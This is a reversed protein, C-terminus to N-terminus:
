NKIIWNEIENIQKKIHKDDKIDNYNEFIIDGLLRGATENKFWLSKRGTNDSEKSKALSASALANRIEQTDYKENQWDEPFQQYKSKVSQIFNAESQEFKEDIVYNLLQKISTFNLDQFVQKEICNGEECDSIAIKLSKLEAKKDDDKLDSDCFVLVKVVYQFVVM